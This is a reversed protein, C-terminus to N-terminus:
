YKRSFVFKIGQRECFKIAQEKSEFKLSLQQLSDASSSWGTSWNARM